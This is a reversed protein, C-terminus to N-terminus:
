GGAKGAQGQGQGQGQNKQGKERGVQNSELRQRQVMIIGRRRFSIMSPTRKGMM